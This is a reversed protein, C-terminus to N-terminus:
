DEWSEISIPMFDLTPFDLTPPPTRGERLWQKQNVVSILSAAVTAM